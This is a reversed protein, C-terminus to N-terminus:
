LGYGGKIRQPNATHYAFLNAFYNNVTMAANYLATMIVARINNAKSGCKQMSDMVYEVTSKNIRKYIRQVVPAPRDERNVRITEARSTLVDVAIAVIEKLQERDFPRDMWIADYDIQLKFLEETEQYSVIPDTYEKTNIETTIGPITETTIEQTIETNTGDGFSPATKEPLPADMGEYADPTEKLPSVRERQFPVAGMEGTGAEGVAAEIPSIGEKPAKGKERESSSPCNHGDEPYTLQRLRQVDLELYLVNNVVLGNINVTRFVRKVVGLKELFIIANAAERKSIGFQVSIQQYSRQLLDAKFKKKVAVVQETNEDRLEAPKYWYVVDALIIIATLNPKRSERVITRYWTQPIVNGSIALKANEDVIANGTSYINGDM